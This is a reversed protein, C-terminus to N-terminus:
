APEARHLRVVATAGPTDHAGFEATEEDHRAPRAPPLDVDLLEGDVLRVCRWGHAVGFDVVSPDHTAVLLTTGRRHISDLLILLDLARAPDLNGTPEDGLLIAPEGVIARAVAVRQQEGGSLMAARTDGRGALGVADLAARARERITARPLDLIALPMAVNELASRESLLKFDQFIVGVNRRVYPISSSRLRAVSRGAVLIEGRDPREAAFVLRLLTTKGAGSPGTLLVADGQAVSFSVGRLAPVGAFSKWVGDLRIMPRLEKEVALVAAEAACFKPPL